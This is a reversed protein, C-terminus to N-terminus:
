GDRNPEYGFRALAPGAAREFAERDAPTFVRRWDGAIGARLFQDPREEGPKRGGTLREFSNARVITTALEHSCEIGLFACLRILEGPGDELLEEFRVEAYRHEGMARGAGAAAITREAWARAIAGLDRAEFLSRGSRVFGEPDSRYADRVAAEAPPLQAKVVGPQNWRHHADSVAVDRGDRVIHIVQAEPVLRAIEAVVGVSSLPTKDGVVRAPTGAAAGALLRRVIAVTLVDAVQTPEADRTWSSRSIWDRLENSERLRQQLSRAPDDAVRAVAGFFRGEGGCRIEPHSDLLDKLLTTGSKAKGVVFFLPPDEPLSVSVPAPAAGGAVRNRLRVALRRLAPPPTVFTRRQSGM